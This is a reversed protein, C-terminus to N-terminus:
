DYRDSSVRVKDGVGLGHHNFFGLNVEIAYTCPVDSSVNKKSMKESRAIKVIKAGEDVFAIDLPIFTNEGWFNLGKKRPFVFLMGEDPDMRERFMLGQSLKYPTDAVQVRVRM